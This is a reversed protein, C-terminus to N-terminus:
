LVLALRVGGGLSADLRSRAGPLILGGLGLSVWPGVRLVRGMRWDVGTQFEVFWGSSQSSDEYDGHPGNHWTVSAVQRQWGGAIGLWVEAPVGPNLVLIAEPGVAGTWESCGTSGVPCSPAGVVIQGLVGLFFWSGRVGLELRAPFVIGSPGPEEGSVRSRGMAGARLAIELAPSVPPGSVPQAAAGPLAPTLLLAVLARRHGIRKLAV